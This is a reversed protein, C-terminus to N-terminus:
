GSAGASYAREFEDLALWQVEDTHENVEGVVVNQGGHPLKPQPSGPGLEDAVMQACNRANRLANTITSPATVFVNSLGKVREGMAVGQSDGIDQKYGAYVCFQIESKPDQARAKLWPFVSLLHGLGRAALERDVPARANDPVDEVARVNPDHPTAYWSVYDSADGAVRDHASNQHAIVLLGLQVAVVSIAPLAGKPGRVCLMHLPRYTIQGMQGLVAEGITKSDGIASAAREFADGTVMGKFLRKTGTGAASIVCRPVITVTDGGSHPRVNVSALRLSTGDAAWSFDAIRGRLVRDVLEDSLIRILQRKPFAYEKLKIVSTQSGGKLLDYLRLEPPIADGTIEQYPYGFADWAQRLQQFPGPPTLVYMADEGYTPLGHKRALPLWDNEVSGRLEKNPFFYGSSLLGHSHLTQGEGLDGNTVLATSFGRDTLENLLAVGQVGGGVILADVQVPSESM